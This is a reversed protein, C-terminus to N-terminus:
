MQETFLMCARTTFEKSNKKDNFLEGKLYLHILDKRTKTDLLPMDIRIQFRRSMANDMFQAHNTAAVLMFKDNGEGTLALINSLIKYHDTDPNLSDRDVFLADAEDILIIHGYSSRRATRLLKNFYKVGAIGSQPL